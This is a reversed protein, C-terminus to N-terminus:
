KDKKPDFEITIPRNPVAHVQKWIKKQVDNTPVPAWGQRCAQLYTVPPRTEVGKAFLYKRVRGVVDLPPSIRVIKDIDEVDKIGQMISDDYSSDFAGCLMLFARLLEKNTRAVIFSPEVNNGSLAAVNVIAWNDEPAVVIANPWESDLVIFVAEQAGFLKAKNKIEHVRLPESEHLSITTNLARNLTNIANTLSVSLVVKQANVVIAKGSLSNPRMLTGGVIDLGKPRNAFVTIGLLAIITLVSNKM